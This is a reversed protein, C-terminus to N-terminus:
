TIYVKQKEARRRANRATGAAANAQIPGGLTVHGDRSTDAPDRAGLPRELVVIVGHDYRPSSQGSRPPSPHARPPFLFSLMIAGRPPFEERFIELIILILYFTGQYSIVKLNTEKRGNEIKM